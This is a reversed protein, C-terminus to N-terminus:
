AASYAWLCNIQNMVREVDWKQASREKSNPDRVVLYGDDTLATMIIFHGKETFDGPRVSAIIPRGQELNSRIVSDSLPLEEGYLGLKAAGETMLLWSTGAGSVFYGQEESFRTVYSPTLAGDNLLSTAVMSLCVPGCGSEGITSNGYAEGSWRADTQLLLPVPGVELLAWDISEGTSSTSPQPPVDAVAEPAQSVLFYAIVAILLVILIAVIRGRKRQQHRYRRRGRQTRYTTTNM